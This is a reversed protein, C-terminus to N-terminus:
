RETVAQVAEAVSHNSLGRGRGWCGVLFASLFSGNTKDTAMVVSGVSGVM